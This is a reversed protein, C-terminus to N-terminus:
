EKFQVYEIFQATDDLTLTSDATSFSFIIFSRVVFLMLMVTWFSQSQNDSKM